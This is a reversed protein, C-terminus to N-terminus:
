AYDSREKYLQYDPLIQLLASKIQREQELNVSKPAGLPELDYSMARGAVPDNLIYTRKSGDPRVIEIKAQEFKVDHYVLIQQAEDSQSDHLWAELLRTLLRKGKGKVSLFLEEVGVDGDPFWQDEITTRYDPRAYRVLRVKQVEGERIAQMMVERDVYPNLVFRIQGNGVVALLENVKKLLPGRINRRSNAHLALFGTTSARDARLLAFCQVRSTHEEEQQFVM